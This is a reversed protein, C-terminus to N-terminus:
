KLGPLHQFGLSGDANKSVKFVFPVTTVPDQDPRTIHIVVKDPFKLTQGKASVFKMGALKIGETARDFGFYRWISGEGGQNASFVGHALLESGSTSWGGSERKVVQNNVYTTKVWSVTLWWKLWLEYLFYESPTM